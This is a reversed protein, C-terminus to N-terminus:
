IKIDFIVTPKYIRRDFWRYINVGLLLLNYGVVLGDTISIFYVNIINEKKVSLNETPIQFIFNRGYNNKGVSFVFFGDTINLSFVLVRVAGNKRM